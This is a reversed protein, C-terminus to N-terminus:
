RRPVRKVVHPRQGTFPPRPTARRLGSSVFKAVSPVGRDNLLFLMYYGPTAIDATAPATLTVGGARQAVTLPIYRQNMDNAHTTAGPAM